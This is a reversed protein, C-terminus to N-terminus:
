ELDDRTLYDQSTHRVRLVTIADVDITFVIRHTPRNSVGFLSQKLGEPLLDAEPAPGYRDPSEPLKRIAQYIQRFWREAQEASRNERWWDFAEQIDNKAPETIVLTPM